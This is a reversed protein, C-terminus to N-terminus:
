RPWPLDKSQLRTITRAIWDREASRQALLYDLELWHAEALPRSKLDEVAKRGFELDTDITQLYETLLEVVTDVPLNHSEALALPFRPYEPEPESMTRRVWDQLASSGADALAYRTREPRAGDRETGAVTILDDRALREVTHYLSGARIKVLRDQRREMLLSFMEYPHMPREALLALVTVALPTL